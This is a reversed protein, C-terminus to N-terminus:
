PQLASALRPREITGIEITALTVAENTRVRIRSRAAYDPLVFGITQHGPGIRYAFARGPEFAGTKASPMAIEITESESATLSLRICPLIEEAMAPIDLAEGAGQGDQDASAANRAVAEFSGCDAALAVNRTM